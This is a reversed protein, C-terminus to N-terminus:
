ELASSCGSSLLHKSSSLAGEEEEGTEDEPASSTRRNMGGDAMTLGCRDRSTGAPGLGLVQCWIQSEGLVTSLGDFLLLPAPSSLLLLPDQAPVSPFLFVSILLLSDGEQTVGDSPPSPPPPPDPRAQSRQTLRGPPRWGSRQCRKVLILWPQGPNSWSMQDPEAQNLHRLASDAHRRPLVGAEEDVNQQAAKLPPHLRWPAHGKVGM